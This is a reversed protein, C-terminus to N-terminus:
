SERVANGSPEVVLWLGGFENVNHCLIEGARDDEYYYLPHGNYTVQTKGDRRMTTGLLNQKAGSSAQPEGETLVPPWATACEGYCESAEGKEKDFLYIPMRKSDFLVRGFQSDEVQITTGAAQETTATETQVPTTAASDEDSDDGGCAAVGLALVIFAAISVYRSM